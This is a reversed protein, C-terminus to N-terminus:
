TRYHPDKRPIASESDIDFFDYIKSATRSTFLTKDMYVIVKGKNMDYIVRGRPIQEYEYARLEPYESQVNKWYEIHTYPSDILGISDAEKLSFDHAVGIVKNDYFWFIGIRLKSRM